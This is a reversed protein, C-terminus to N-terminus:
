EDNALDSYPATKNAESKNEKIKEKEPRGEELFRKLWSITEWNEQFKM